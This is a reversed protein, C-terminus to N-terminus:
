IKKEKLFEYVLKTKHGETKYWFFEGNKRVIDFNGPDIGHGELRNFNYEIDDKFLLKGDQYAWFKKM